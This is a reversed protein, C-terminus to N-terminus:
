PFLYKLLDQETIKRRLEVDSMNKTAKNSLLKSLKGSLRTIPNKADFKLAYMHKKILLILYLAGVIHDKAQVASNYIPGPKAPRIRAPNPGLTSLFKPSLEPRLRVNQRLHVFFYDFYSPM